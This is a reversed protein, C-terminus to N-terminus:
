PSPRPKPSRRPASRVPPARSVFSASPAGAAVWALLTQKETETLREVPPNAPIVNPMFGTEVALGIREYIPKGNHL